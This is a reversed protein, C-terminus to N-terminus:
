PLYGLGSEEKNEQEKENLGLVLATLGHAIGYPNKEIEVREQQDCCQEGRM